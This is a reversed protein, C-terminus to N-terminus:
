AASPSITVFWELTVKKSHSYSSHCWLLFSCDKCNCEVTCFRAFSHWISCDLSSSQLPWTSIVVWVQIYMKAVKKNKRNAASWLYSPASPQIKLCLGMNKNRVLFKRKTVKHLYPLKEDNESLRDGNRYFYKGIRCFQSIIKKDQWNNGKVCVKGSM